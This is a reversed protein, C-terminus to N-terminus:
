SGSSWRAANTSPSYWPKVIVSIAAAIPMGSAVAFVRRKRARSFIRARRPSSQLSEHRYTRFVPLRLLGRGVEGVAHHLANPCFSPARGGLWATADRKARADRPAEREGGGDGEGDSPAAGAREIVAVGDGGRADLNVEAGAGDGHELAACVHRPVTVVHILGGAVDEVADLRASREPHM